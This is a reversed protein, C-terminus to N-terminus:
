AFYENIKLWHYMVSILLGFLVSGVNLPSPAYIYLAAGPLCGAVALSYYNALKYKSLFRYVPFGYVAAVFFAVFSTILAWLGVAGILSGITGKESGGYISYAFFTSGVTMVVTFTAILM